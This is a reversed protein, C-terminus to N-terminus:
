LSILIISSSQSDNTFTEIQAGTFDRKLSTFLGAVLTRQLFYLGLQVYDADELSDCNELGRDPNEEVSIFNGAQFQDPALLHPRAALALFLLPVLLGHPWLKRARPQLAVLLLWPRLLKAAPPSNASLQIM